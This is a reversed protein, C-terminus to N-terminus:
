ILDKKIRDFVNKFATDVGRNERYRLIEYTNTAVKIRVVVLDKTLDEMDEDFNFGFYLDVNMTICHKIEPIIIVTNHFGGIEEDVMHDYLTDVFSSFDDLTEFSINGGHKSNWMYEANTRGDNVMLQDIEAQHRAKMKALQACIAPTSM